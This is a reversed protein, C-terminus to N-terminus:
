SALQPIVSWTVKKLEQGQRTSPSEDAADPTQVFRLLGDISSGAGPDARQSNCLLHEDHGMTM